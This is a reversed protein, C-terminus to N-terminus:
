YAFVTQTTGKIQFTLNFPTATSTQTMYACLTYNGNVFANFSAATAAGLSTLPVNTGGVISINALPSAPATSPCATQYAVEALALAGGGGTNNAIAYSIDTIIQNQSPMMNQVDFQQVYSAPMLAGNLNLSDTASTTMKAQGCGILALCAVILLFSKKM